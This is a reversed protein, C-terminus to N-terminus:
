ETEAMDNVASKKGKQAKTMKQKYAEDIQLFEAQLEDFGEKIQACMEQERKLEDNAALYLSEAEEFRAKAAWFAKSDVDLNARRLKERADRIEQALMSVEDNLRNRRDRYDRGESVYLPAENREGRSYAAKAANFCEIMAAHEISAEERLREIRRGNETRIRIYDERIRDSRRVRVEREKFERNMVRRAENRAARAKAMKEFAAQERKRAEEYTQWATQKRWFAVQREQFLKDLELDSM